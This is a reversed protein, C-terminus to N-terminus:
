GEDNFGTAGWRFTQRVIEPARQNFHVWQPGQGICLFGARSKDDNWDIWVIYISIWYFSMKKYM